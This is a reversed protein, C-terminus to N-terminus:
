GKYDAGIVITIPSGPNADSFSATGAGLEKVLGLAAGELDGSNYYVSTTAVDRTSANATGSVKWGEGTLKQGLKEDANDAKTGNLITISADLGAPLQKPDTIPTVAKQTTGPQATASETSTPFLGLSFTPAIRSMAFLGVVVLAGTALAAWAFVVWGRGRRRPGRHAGVTHQDDPIADFRDRHSM